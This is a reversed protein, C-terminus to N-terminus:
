TKDSRNVVQLVVNVGIFSVWTVIYSCGMFRRKSLPWGVTKVVKMIKAAIKAAKSTRCFMLFGHGLFGFDGKWDGNAIEGDDKFRHACSPAAVDESTLFSVVNDDELWSMGLGFM